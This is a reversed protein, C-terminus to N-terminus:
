SEDSLETNNPLEIKDLQETQRLPQILLELDPSSDGNSRALVVSGLEARGTEDFPASWWQGGVRLVANARVPPTAVVALKWNEQIGPRGFIAIYYPGKRGETLLIEDDEGSWSSGLQSHVACFRAIYAGSLQLSPWTAQEAEPHEEEPVAQQSMVSPEQEASANQTEPSQSDVM